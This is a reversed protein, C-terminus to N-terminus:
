RKPGADILRELLQEYALEAVWWLFPGATPHVPEAGALLSPADGTFQAVGIGFLRAELLAADSAEVGRTLAAGMPAIASLQGVRELLRNLEQGAAVVGTISLPPRAVRIYGARTRRVASRASEEIRAEAWKPIVSHPVELEFPLEWLARLLARDTVPPVATRLREVHHQEDLKVTVAVPGAQLQLKILDGSFGFVRAATTLRDSSV